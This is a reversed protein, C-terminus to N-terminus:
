TGPKEDFHVRLECWQYFKMGCAQCGCRFKPLDEKSDAFVFFLYLKLLLLLSLLLLSLLLLLLLLFQDNSSWVHFLLSPFM